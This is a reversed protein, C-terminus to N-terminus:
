FPVVGTSIGGYILGMLASGAINVSLTALPQWGPGMAAAVILTTAYRSMAGASWRRSHCDLHDHSMKVWGVGFIWGECRTIETADAPLEPM